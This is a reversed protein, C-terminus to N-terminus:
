GEFARLTISIRRGGLRKSKPVEHTWAQNTAFPLVFVAGDHADFDRKGPERWPRLRFVRRAGLSITVIPAGAVMNATSDRHKGIYHGLDGDYWNLLVGNLRADIAAQGWALFPAITAPVPLARNTNGTYHYDHGYAQQYRPTQVKRGHLHITHYTGPHLAWLAEFAEPGLALSEPLSASWFLCGGELRHRVAGPLAEYREDPPAGLEM